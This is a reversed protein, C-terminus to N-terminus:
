EPSLSSSILRRGAMRRNETFITATAGYNPRIDRILADYGTREPHHDIVADIELLRKPPDEGFVNPQVDVLVLGDMEDLEDPSIVRVEIGLAEVMARNEPRTVDGFSILPATTRKRGLIARLAYGCAIGDPDPDPQLLIGVRERSDLLARLQVVRQLNSLHDFEDDIDDRILTKLGTRRACGHQPLDEDSLLDTLVLIPVDPDVKAIERVATRVWPGDDSALAYEDTALPDLKLFAEEALGGQLARFGPPRARSENERPVWLLEENPGAGIRNWLRATEAGDCVIIRRGM